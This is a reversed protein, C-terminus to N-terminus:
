LFTRSSVRGSKNTYSIENTWSTAIPIDKAPIDIKKDYKGNKNTDIYALIEFIGKDENEDGISKLGHQFIQYADNFIFNVAHRNTTPTFM